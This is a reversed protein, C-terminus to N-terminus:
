ERNTDLLKVECCESPEHLYIEWNLQQAHEVLAFLWFWQNISTTPRATHGPLCLALLSFPLCNKTSYPKEQVQYLSRLLDNKVLAIQFVMM